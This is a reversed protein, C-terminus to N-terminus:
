EARLTVAPDLRTARVAPIATALLAVASLVVAVIVFTAPDSAGVGFLQSALLRGAALAAV